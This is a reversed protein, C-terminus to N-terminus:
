APSPDAARDSNWIDRILKWTGDLERRYVHLGKGRDELAPGGAAPWATATYTVHEFAMDGALEIVTSTFAFRFRQRAFLDRFYSRLAERGHVPPHHPPMLTGDAAWAALVAPLDSANVAQLLSSSVKAIVARDRDSADPHAMPFNHHHVGVRNQLDPGRAAIALPTRRVSRM